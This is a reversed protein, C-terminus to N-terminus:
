DNHLSQNNIFSNAKSLNTQSQQAPDKRLLSQIGRAKLSKLQKDMAEKSHPNLVLPDEHNYNPKKQLYEGANRKQLPTQAQNMRPVSEVSGQVNVQDDM